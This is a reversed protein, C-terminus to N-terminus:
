FEYLKLGPIYHFDKLLCVMWQLCFMRLKWGRRPRAVESTQM